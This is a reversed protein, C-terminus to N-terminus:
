SDVYLLLSLLCIEPKFISHKNRTLETWQKRLIEKGFKRRFGVLSYSHGETSVWVNIDQKIVQMQNNRVRVKHASLVLILLQLSRCGFTVRMTPKTKYKSPNRFGSEPEILSKCFLSFSNFEHNYNIVDFPNFILIPLSFFTHLAFNLLFWAWTELQGIGTTM